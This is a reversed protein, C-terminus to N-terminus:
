GESEKSKKTPKVELYPFGKKVLVTASEVTLTTFDISGFKAFHIRKTTQKDLGVVKFKEATETPLAKNFEVLSIYEAKNM